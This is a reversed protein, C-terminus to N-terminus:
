NTVDSSRAFARIAVWRPDKRIIRQQGHPNRGIYKLISPVELLGLLYLWLSGM